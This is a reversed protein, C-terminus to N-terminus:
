PEESNVHETFVLEESARTFSAVWPWTPSLLRHVNYQLWEM